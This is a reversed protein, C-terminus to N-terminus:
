ARGGDNDKTLTALPARRPPDAARGRGRPATGGARVPEAPREAADVPLRLTLPGAALRAKPNLARLTAPALGLRRALTDWGEGKRVTVRRTTYAATTVLAANVAVAEPIDNGAAGRRPVILTSGAAILRGPPVENVARLEAAGIGHASALAEVSSRRNVRVTTWRSLAGAQGALAHAFAAERGVPVYIEADAAAVIVPKRHQPNLMRFQAESIGALRAARDVDIDRTIAVAAFYPANRLPPLAAGHAAPDAVVQALALLRPVYNATEENLRLDEFRGELGRRRAAAVAREICGEGCNYAALALLWDGGFRAHLEALYRLAAQTAARIHRREDIFLHQKLDFRRATPAIFQWLGDAAAPSRADPRFASEVAPLLAVELPVGAREVAEVIDFLYLAARTFTRDLHAPNNRYWEVHRAQRAAATGGTAPLALGARIRQWLDAPATAPALAAPEAAPTPPAAPQAEGTAPPPEAPREAAPLAPAATAPAPREGPLSQCGALALLVAAAIASSWRPPRSAPTARAQRSKM